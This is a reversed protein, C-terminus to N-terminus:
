DQRLSSFLREIEVLEGAITRARSEAEADRGWKEAQYLEDLHSASFAEEAGIRGEALALALVISGTLAAASQLGALAFDDYAAIARELAALADAPQAVFVIGKGPLLAAGHRAKLWALLPDWFRAQREILEAPAEARYCLLDSKAFALVQEVAVARGSAVRDIATKAHKTLLMSEPRITDAQARWEAAVAEALARNPVALPAGLPTRIPKGDLLVSYRGESERVSVDKYFRARAGTM